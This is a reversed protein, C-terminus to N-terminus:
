GAPELRVRGVRVFEADFADREVWGALGNPGLAAPFALTELTGELALDPSYVDIRRPDLPDGDTVLIWLGGEPTAALDRVVPVREPFLMSEAWAEIEAPSMAVGTFGGSSAGEGGLRELMARRLADRSRVRLQEDVPRVEVARRLVRPGDPDFVRIEYAFTPALALRVGGASRVAPLFPALSRRQFSIGGDARAGPESMESARRPNAVRTSRTFRQDRGVRLTWVTISDPQQWRSAGGVLVLTEPGAHTLAGDGLDDPAPWDHLLAGLTDFMMVRGRRTDLVAVHAPTPSTIDFPRRFEGPGDGARGFSRTPRGDSGVRTVRYSLGDLVWLAGDPAFAVDTVRGFEQPVGRDDPPGGRVVFAEEVEARLPMPASQAQLPASGVLALIGELVLPRALGGLRSGEGSWWSTETMTVVRKLLM